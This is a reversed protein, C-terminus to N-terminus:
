TQPINEQQGNISWSLQEFMVWMTESSLHVSSIMLSLGEVTIHLGRPGPINGLQETYKSKVWTDAERRSGDDEERPLYQTDLVDPSFTHTEECGSM